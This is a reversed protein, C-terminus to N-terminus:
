LLRATGPSKGPRKKNAAQAPSVIKNGKDPRTEAPFLSIQIANGNTLTIRLIAKRKFDAVIPGQKEKL